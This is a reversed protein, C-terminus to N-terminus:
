LLKLMTSQWTHLSQSHLWKPQYLLRGVLITYMNLGHTNCDSCTHKCKKWKWSHQQFLMTMLHPGIKRLIESAASLRKHYTTLFAFTPATIDFGAWSTAFDTLAWRCHRLSVTETGGCGDDDQVSIASLPSSAEAEGCCGGLKSTDKFDVM